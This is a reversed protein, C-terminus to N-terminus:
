KNDLNTRWTKKEIGNNGDLIVYSTSQTAIDFGSAAMLPIDLATYLYNVVKERLIAREPNDTTIGLREASRRFGDPYGGQQEAQPTYGLASVIIKIADIETISDSPCFRNNGVGNIFGLDYVAKIYNYAWHTTSVDSFISESTVVYVNEEQNYIM